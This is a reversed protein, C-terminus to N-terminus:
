HTYSKFRYPFFGVSFSCFFLLLIFKWRYCNKQISIYMKLSFHVHATHTHTERKGDVTIPNIKCFTFNKYIVCVEMNFTHTQILLYYIEFYVVCVVVFIQHNKAPRKYWHVYRKHSVVLMITTAGVYSYLNTFIKYVM